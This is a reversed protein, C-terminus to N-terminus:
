VPTPDPRVGPVDEVAQGNELARLCEMVPHTTEADDCPYVGHLRDGERLVLCLVPLFMVTRGAAGRRVRFFRDVSQDTDEMARQLERYLAVEEPLGGRSGQRFCVKRSWHTVTVEDVTGAEQLGYLRDLIAEQQRQAADPTFGRMYVEVRLQENDM